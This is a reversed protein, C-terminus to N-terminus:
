KTRVLTLPLSNGLQTWTGEIKDINVKGSFKGVVSPIDMTLLGDAMAAKFVPLGNVGQDPSDVFVVSKGAADREFRFAITLTTIQGAWRGSLLKMADASLDIQAPAPQYKEKKLVQPLERGSVKYIGTITNNSLTGNYESNAIPIRFHVRNGDLSVDSIEHGKIGQDPQDFTSIIKGDKSYEFHYVVLISMEETVKLRSVWEGLLPKLSSADPKTYPTLVLPLTSGPQKWEGTITGKGVTGNYSGSLSTVEVTLKGGAYRVANAPVNKIAGSDLSNLVAKYSGDAQRTLIFQITINENPSVALKGQWTGTLDAQAVAHSGALFGLMICLRALTQM